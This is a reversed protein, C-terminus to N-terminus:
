RPRRKIRVVWFAGVAILALGLGPWRYLNPGDEPFHVVSPKRPRYRVEVRDGERPRRASPEVDGTVQKGQATTFRVTSRWEGDDAQRVRVVEAQATPLRSETLAVWGGIGILMVGSLIFLM